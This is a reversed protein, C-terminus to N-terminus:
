LNIKETPIIEHLYRGITKDSGIPIGLKNELIPKIEIIFNYANGSYGETYDNTSHTPKLSSGAEFIKYLFGLIPKKLSKKKESDSNKPLKNSSVNDATNLNEHRINLIAKFCAKNLHNLIKEIYKLKILGNLLVKIFRNRIIKGMKEPNLLSILKNATIKIETLYAIQEENRPNCRIIESISKISDIASLLKEALDYNKKFKFDEEIIKIQLLESESWPGTGAFTRIGYNYKEVNVKEKM